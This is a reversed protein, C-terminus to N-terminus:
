GWFVVRGSVYTNGGVLDGAGDVSMPWPYLSGRVLEVDDDDDDDVAVAAACVVCGVLVPAVAGADLIM